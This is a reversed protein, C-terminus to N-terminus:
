KIRRIISGNNLIAVPRGCEACKYKSGWMIQPVEARAGCYCIWLVKLEGTEEDESYM